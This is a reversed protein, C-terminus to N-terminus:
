YIRTIFIKQHGSAFLSPHMGPWGHLLILPIADPKESFLGVFHIKYEEKELAVNAIFHPFSNMNKERKRRYHVRKLWPFLGRM